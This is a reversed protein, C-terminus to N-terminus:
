NNQVFTELIKTFNTKSVGEYEALEYLKPFVGWHHIIQSAAFFIFQIIIIKILIKEFKEM